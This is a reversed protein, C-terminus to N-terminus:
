IVSHVPNSEVCIAAVPRAPCLNECAGCGICRAEDVVPVKRSKPNKPDKAVMTIAATPCQRFCNDCQMNDTNVICRESFWVARGVQVSSKEAVSIPLIAGAPCVQSCKVCDTACYGREYSMEPQMFDSLKASPELVGSPCASVCLQCATCKESFDKVSVAGAPM